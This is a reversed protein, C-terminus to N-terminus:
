TVFISFQLALAGPTTGGGGKEDAAVDNEHGTGPAIDLVSVARERVKITFTGEHVGNIGTSTATWAATLETGAPETTILSFTDLEVTERPRLNGVSFTLTVSGGNEIQVRRPFYQQPALGLAAHHLYSSSGLLDFPRFKGYPWPAEPLDASFDDAYAEVAGPVYVVVEVNPFNLDTPNTVTWEMVNVKSAVLLSILAPQLQEAAMALYAEVEARFDDPTRREEQGLGGMAARLGALNAGLLGFAPATGTSAAKTEAELTARLPKLVLERRQDIWQKTLRVNADIPVAEVPEGVWGVRLDLKAARVVGGLLRAQLMQMDAVSARNTDALGRVFVTGADAGQGKPPQYTKHLLYIPDGYRPAEVVVVLVTRGDVTLYTPAWVPGSSGLYRQLYADLKAVDVPNVGLLRAPEVGVVLYGLGGVFRAAREPSRNAMGLVQKSISFWGETNDLALNSKWEIWEAEDEAVADIVARVLAELESPRRMPHSTDISLSM